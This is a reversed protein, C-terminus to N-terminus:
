ARRRPCAAARENGSFHCDASVLLGPPLGALAVIPSELAALIAFCRRVWHGSTPVSSFALGQVSRGAGDREPSVSGLTGIGRSALLALVIVVFM